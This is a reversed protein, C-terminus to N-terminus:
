VLHEPGAPYPFGEVQDSCKFPSLQAFPPSICGWIDDGGWHSQVSENSCQCELPYISNCEHPGRNQPHAILYAHWVQHMTWALVVKQPCEQGKGVQGGQYKGVGKGAQGEQMQVGFPAGSGEMQSYGQIAGKWGQAYNM